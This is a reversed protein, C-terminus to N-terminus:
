VVGSRLKHVIYVLVVVVNVILFLFVHPWWEPHAIFWNYVLAVIALGCLIGTLIFTLYTKMIEEWDPHASVVPNM